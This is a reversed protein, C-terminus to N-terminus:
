YEVSDKIEYEFLFTLAWVKMTGDFVALSIDPKSLNPCGAVSDVGMAAVEHTGKEGCCSLTVTLLVGVCIAKIFPWRM